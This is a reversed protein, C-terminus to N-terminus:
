KGQFNPPRKELFATMGETRDSTGNLFAQSLKELALGTQFDTAVGMDIVKKAMRVALPAKELIKGAMEYAAPLLQDPPVVKNALGIRYAEAADVIEGTFIMEKAKGVGVLRPLRQTGGAGPLIGVTPEVLGIKARESAIRLDCALTVECGGGLAVGNVAAIIPKVTNELDTLAGQAGPELAEISPRELLWKLDAGAAFAKDGAGTIIVVKISNDSNIQRALNSIDEWTEWNIANRVEPRNITVLLIGKDNNELLLNRYTGM